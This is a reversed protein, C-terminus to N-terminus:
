KGTYEEFKALVSAMYNEWNSRRAEYYSTLNGDGLTVNNLWFAAGGGNSEFAGYVYGFDYMRGNMVLEVMDMNTEDRVLKYSLVNEYYAPVATRHSEAALGELIIGAFERDGLTKLFVMADASGALTSYYKDQNEDYKPRPIIAYDIDLDRLGWSAMNIRIYAALTNGVTFMNYGHNWKDQCNVAENSHTIDHMWEVINVMKEDYYVDKFSGDDQKELIRHGFHFPITSPDGKFDLALGYRDGDDKKGDGNVDQYATSVMEMMKDKTWRGEMVVDYIDELSLETALDRNYFMCETMDMNSISYDSIFIFTKDDYTLAETVEDSYWPQDFNVYPIERADLYYDQMFLIGLQVIGESAIQYLDDGAAATNKIEDTSSDTVHSVIDVNFRGEVAIDRNYLADNLTEGTLEEAMMLYSTWSPILSTFVRGEFDKEPLGDDFAPETEVAETAATDTSATTETAAEGCAALSTLMAALLLAATWKKAHM